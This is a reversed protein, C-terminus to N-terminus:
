RSALNMISYERFDMASALAVRCARSVVKQTPVESKFGAFGNISRHYRTFRSKGSYLSCRTVKSSSWLPIRVSISCSPFFNSKRMPTHSELSHSRRQLKRASPLYLFITATDLSCGRAPLFRISNFSKYPSVSIITARPSEPTM